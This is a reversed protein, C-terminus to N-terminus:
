NDESELEMLKGDQNFDGRLLRQQLMAMCFLIDKMGMDSQIGLQLKGSDTKEFIIQAKNAM